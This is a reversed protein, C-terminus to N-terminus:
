WANGRIVGKAAALTTADPAAPGFSSSPQYYVWTTKTYNKQLYDNLAPMIVPDAEGQVVYITKGDLTDLRPSLSFIQVPLAVGRPSLVNYKKDTVVPTSTPTPLTTPTPTVTVTVTPTLTPQAQSACSIALLTFVTVVSILILLLGNKNLIMVGKLYKNESKAIFIRIRYIDEERKFINSVLKATHDNYGFNIM